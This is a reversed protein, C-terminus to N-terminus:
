QKAALPEDAVLQARAATGGEAADGRAGYGPRAMPLINGVVTCGPAPVAPNCSASAAQALPVGEPEVSQAAPAPEMARTASPSATSMASPQQREASRRRQSGKASGPSPPPPPSTAAAAPAAAQMWRAFWPHQLAQEASIRTAPNRDLLQGLLDRAQRTVGRWEPGSMNIPSGCVALMVQYAPLKPDLEARKCDWFPYRGTLLLFLMVGAAWVDVELGHRSTFQEPAYYIPSGGAKVGRMLDKYSLSCGFDCAVVCPFCGGRGDGAAVQDQLRLRAPGISGVPGDCVEGGDSGSGACAGAWEADISATLLFNAPKVDMMAVGHAHCDRIASLVCWMIAACCSEPLPGDKLADALDGGACLQQVLYVASSDEYLGLLQAVFRSDGSLSGWLTVERQICELVEERSRGPQSKPLVKVAVQKSADHRSAALWVTGFAGQEKGTAQQQQQQLQQEGFAIGDEFTRRPDAWGTAELFQRFTLM